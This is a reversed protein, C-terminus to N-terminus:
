EAGGVRYGGVALRLAPHPPTRSAAGGYALSSFGRGGDLLTYRGRGGQKAQYMAADADQLLEGATREETGTVVGVSATVTM